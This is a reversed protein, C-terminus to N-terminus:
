AILANYGRPNTSRRSGLYDRYVKRHSAEPHESRIGKAHRKHGPLVSEGYPDEKGECDQRDSEEQSQLKAVLSFPTGTIGTTLLRGQKILTNADEPRKFEIVMANVQKDSALRGLWCIREINSSKVIEKNWFEINHIVEEQHTINAKAVLIGSVVMEYTPIMVRASARLAGLINISSSQAIAKNLLNILGKKPDTQNIATNVITKDPTRIRLERTGPGEQATTATTTTTAKTRLSVNGTGNSSAIGAWSSETSHSSNSKKDMEQKMAQFRDDDGTPTQSQAQRAEKDGRLYAKVARLYEMANESPIPRAKRGEYDETAPKRGVYEILLDTDHLLYTLQEARDKAKKGVKPCGTDVLSEKGSPPM